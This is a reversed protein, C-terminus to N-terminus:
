HERAEERRSRARDRPPSPTPRRVPPAGSGSIDRGSQCSPSAARPRSRGSFCSSLTRRTPRADAAAPRARAPCSLPALRIFARTAPTNSANVPNKTITEAVRIWVWVAAGSGANKAVFSYGTRSSARHLPQWACSPTADAVRSWKGAFSAVGACISSNPRESIGSTFRAFQDSESSSRFGVLATGCVPPSRM